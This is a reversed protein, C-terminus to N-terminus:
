DKYGPYYKLLNREINKDKGLAYKIKKIPGMNKNGADTHHTLEYIRKAALAQEKSGPAASYYNWMLETGLGDQKVGDISVPREILNSFALLTQSTPSLRLIDIAELGESMIEDYLVQVDNPVEYDGFKSNNVLRVVATKTTEDTFQFVGKATSDPNTAILPNSEGGSENSAIFSILTDTAKNTKDNFPIPAFGASVFVNNM